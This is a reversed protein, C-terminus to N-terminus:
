NFMIGLIQLEDSESGTQSSGLSADNWCCRQGIGGGYCISSGNCLYSSRQGIGGWYSFSNNRFFVVRMGLVVVGVIDLVTQSSVAFALVFGTVTVYDLTAVGENISIAEFTCDIVSSIWNVSKVSNDVSFRKDLFSNNGFNSSWNCVCSWNSFDCSWKGISLGSDSFYCVRSWYGLVIMLLYRGSLSVQRTVLSGYSLLFVCGRGVNKRRYKIANKILMERNQNYQCLIGLFNKLLTFDECTQCNSLSSYNWGCRKCIGCRDCFYHSGQCVSSWYSFSNNRFFVIGMGLVVVGVIDLVTQGTVAFALLFGTVTINNVTAVGENVSITKSTSDIICCVRHISEISNYVSFRKDLFCNNGFNSGWNGVGCWYSFDSSWKRIGLRGDGFYCVRSRNGLVVVLLYRGSWNRVLTQRRTKNKVGEEYSEEYCGNVLYMITFIVIVGVIDLITQGSVAFALVFGTVTVYDLTAVGENISIAEFTCNIVSSVWNVSEVSNDISFGKDLFSNNGFNSSWNGVCSWNSFDCSWKGISLGSDSFYCVRSWYRLVVM